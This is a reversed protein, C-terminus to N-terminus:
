PSLSANKRALNKLWTKVLSQIYNTTSEIEPPTFLSPNGMYHSYGQRSGIDGFRDAVGTYTARVM